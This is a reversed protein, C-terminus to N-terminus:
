GFASSTDYHLFAVFNADHPFGAGVGDSRVVCFHDGRQHRQAYREVVRLWKKLRAFDDIPLFLPDNRPTQFGLGSIAAELGALQDLPPPVRFPDHGVRFM